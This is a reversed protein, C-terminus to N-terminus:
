HTKFMGYCSVIIEPHEGYLYWCQHNGVSSHSCELLESETGVCHVKEIVAYNESNGFRKEYEKIIYAGLSLCEHLILNNPLILSVSTKGESSFGLQRCVVQANRGWNEHSDCVIGWVGYACFELIGTSDTVGGVLRVEGHKCQKELANLLSFHQSISNAFWLLEPHCFLRLLM